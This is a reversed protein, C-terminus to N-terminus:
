YRRPKPDLTERMRCDGLIIAVVVVTIAQPSMAGPAARQFRWGVVSCSGSTMKLVADETLGFAAYATRDNPGAIDPAQLFINM